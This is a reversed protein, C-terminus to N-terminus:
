MGARNRRAMGALQVMGFREYFTALEPDCVLVVMYLHGLADFMRRALESGIGRHQYEPLVELLPLYAALVGDSIANIFGVLRGDDRALV